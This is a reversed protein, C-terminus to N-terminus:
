ITDVAEGLIFGKWAEVSGSVPCRQLSLSSRSPNAEMGRRWEAEENRLDLNPSKTLFYSPRWLCTFLPFTGICGFWCSTRSTCLHAGTWIIPIVHVKYQAQLGNQAARGQIYSRGTNQLFFYPQNDLSCSATGISTRVFWHTSARHLLNIM